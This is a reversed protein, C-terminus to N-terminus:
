VKVRFLPVEMPPKGSPGGPPAPPPTQKATPEEGRREGRNRRRADLARQAAEWAEPSVIAPFPVLIGCYTAEGKYIPNHLQGLATTHSAQGLAHAIARLPLGEAALRYARRVRVAYEEDVQFATAPMGKTWGAPRIWGRPTAIPWRGQRAAELKGAHCRELITEVEFESVADLLRDTLRTTANNAQPGVMMSEIRVGHEELFRTMAPNYETSRGFRDRRWVLLVDLRRQGALDLIRNMMPRNPNRGSDVEKMIFAVRYGMRTVYARLDREQGALSYGRKQEATSVRLYLAVRLPSM